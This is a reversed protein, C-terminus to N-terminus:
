FPSSLTESYKISFFLVLGVKLRHPSVFEGYSNEYVVGKSRLDTRYKFNLSRIYTQISRIM